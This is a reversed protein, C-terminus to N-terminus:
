QKIGLIASLLVEKDESSDYEAVYEGEHMCIIRNSCKRLENMESSILIIGVGNEEAIQKMLRYIETKTGIDIGKTPEDFIIIEPDGYMVRGIIVKQQNGGSLFKIHKESSPTKVDYTDIVEKVLKKEKSKSVGLGGSVQKMVAATINERVSLDALIGQSRREEPLYYMGNAVSYTTDGLKWSKGKVSVSGKYIPLYGFVAQMLESRGAGVLGAFGLIEGKKLKFSIDKFDAGTLKDVELLVEDQVKESAFSESENIAHGTMKVIISPIDTESAKEVGENIGNRFVAIRDGIEFVEELKHSIFVICKGESKLEAVIEFLKKTDETTLSTTPEDLMLIEYGESMVARAIQLLQKQSVTIDKVLKKPSVEIGFKELIPMAKKQLAKQSVAGKIGFKSYPMFLNEAVSMYSFLDIEQPVYAVKEFLQPNEKANQGDILIEGKEPVYVGTLCKIITSKGAGNEGCICFVEGSNLTLDVDDLATVGPFVKTIHKAALREM